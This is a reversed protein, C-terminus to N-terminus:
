VSASCAVSGRRGHPPSFAGSKREKTGGTDGNGRSGNLGARWDAVRPSEWFQLASPPRPDNQGEHDGM